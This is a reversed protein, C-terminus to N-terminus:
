IVIALEIQFFPLRSDTIRCEQFQFDVSNIQVFIVLQIQILKSIKVGISITNQVFWFQRADQRDLVDQRRLNQLFVVRVPICRKFPLFKIFEDAVFLTRHRSHHGHLCQRAACHNPSDFMVELVGGFFFDLLREKPHYRSPVGLQESGIFSPCLIQFLLDVKIPRFLLTREIRLPRSLIAFNMLPIVTM